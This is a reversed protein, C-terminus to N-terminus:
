CGGIFEGEEPCSPPNVLHCTLVEVGCLSTEYIPTSNTIREMKKWVSTSFKRIGGTKRLTGKIEKIANDCYAIIKNEKKQNSTRWRDRWGSYLSETESVATGHTGLEIGRFSNTSHIYLHTFSFCILAGTKWFLSTPSALSKPHCMRFITSFSLSSSEAHPTITLQSEQHDHCSLQNVFAVLAHGLCPRKPLSQVGLKWPM